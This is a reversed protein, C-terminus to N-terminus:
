SFLYVGNRIIVQGDVELTPRRLVNDIHRSARINGGFTVNTGFAIHLGGRSGEDELMWGKIAAHPNLGIGLEAVWYVNPDEAERLLKELLEAQPGGSFSVARGEKIEITVPQTVVGVGAISGDVVLVGEASGEVPPIHAEVNPPQSMDGRNKAFPKVPESQRGKISFTLDTGLSSTIRVSGAASLFDALKIADQELKAFDAEIGGRILMEERFETMCVVRAGNERAKKTALAHAISQAVPQFIVDSAMMAAAVVPSPEAGHGQRPSMVVVSVDAGCLRSAVALPTAVEMTEPDATILVKEGPKVDTLGSVIKMAGVTTLLEKV